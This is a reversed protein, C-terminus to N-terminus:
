HSMSSSLHHYHLFEQPSDDDGDSTSDDHSVPLPIPKSTIVNVFAKHAEQITTAKRDAACETESLQLVPTIPKPTL